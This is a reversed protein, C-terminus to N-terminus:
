IVVNNEQIEDFYRTETILPVNLSKIFVHKSATQFYPCIEELNMPYLCYTINFPLYCVLEFSCLIKDSTM